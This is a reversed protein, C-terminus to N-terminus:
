RKNFPREKFGKLYRFAKYQNGAGKRHELNNEISTKGNALDLVKAKLGPVPPISWPIEFLLPKEHPFPLRKVGINKPEKNYLEFYISKRIYYSDLRM